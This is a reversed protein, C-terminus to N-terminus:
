TILPSLKWMYEGEKGHWMGLWVLDKKTTYEGSCHVFLGPFCGDKPSEACSVYFIWLTTFPKIITFLSAM